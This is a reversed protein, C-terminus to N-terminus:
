FMSLNQRPISLFEDRFHVFLPFSFFFYQTGVLSLFLFLSASSNSPMTLSSSSFLSSSGPRIKVHILLITQGRALLNEVAWKLASQSARDKDIAVAILKPKQFQMM